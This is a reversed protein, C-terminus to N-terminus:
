HEIPEIEPEIKALSWGDPYEIAYKHTNDIYTKEQCVRTQEFYLPNNRSNLPSVLKKPSPSSLM